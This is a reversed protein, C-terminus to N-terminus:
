SVLQSDSVPISAFEEHVMKLVLHDLGNKPAHDGFWFQIDPGYSGYFIHGLYPEHCTVFDFDMQLIPIPSAFSEVNRKISITFKGGNNEMKWMHLGRDKYQGFERELWNYIMRGHNLQHDRKRRLDDGKLNEERFGFEEQGRKKQVQDYKRIAFILVIACVLAILWMIISDMQLTITGTM